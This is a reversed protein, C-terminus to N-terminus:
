QRIKTGLIKAISDPSLRWEGRKWVSGQGNGDALSWVAYCCEHLTLAVTGDTYILAHYEQRAYDEIPEPGVWEVVVLFKFTPHDAHM